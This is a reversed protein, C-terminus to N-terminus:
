LLNPPLGIKNFQNAAAEVHRRGNHMSFNLHGPLLAEFDYDLLTNMSAAYEQVSSDGVNQLIIKGGWFVHDGSFLYGGAGGTVFFCM